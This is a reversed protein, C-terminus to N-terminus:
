LVKIAYCLWCQIQFSYLNSPDVQDRLESLKPTNKSQYDFAENHQGSESDVLGSALGGRIHLLNAVSTM